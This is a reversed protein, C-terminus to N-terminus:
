ALGLAKIYAPSINKVILTGRVGNEAHSDSIAAIIQAPIIVKAPTSVRQRQYEDIYFAKTSSADPKPM